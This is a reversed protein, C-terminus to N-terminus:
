IQQPFRSEPLLNDRGKLLHNLAQIRYIIGLILSYVQLRLAAIANMSSPYPCSEWVCSYICQWSMCQSITLLRRGEFKSLAHGEMLCRSVRCARSCKRTCQAAKSSTIAFAIQSSLIPYSSRGILDINQFKTYDSCCCLKM